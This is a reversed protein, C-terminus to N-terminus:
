RNPFGAKAKKAQAAEGQLGMNKFKEIIEPREQSIQPVLLRYTEVITKFFKYFNLTHAAPKKPLDALYDIETDSLYDFLNGSGGLVAAGRPEYCKEAYWDLYLALGEQDFKNDHFAVALALGLKNGACLSASNSFEQSWCSDGVAVVHDKYPLEIAKWVNVVCSEELDMRTVDKFWPSYVPDEKTFRDIGRSLDFGPEYSFASLHMQGEVAQLTLAFIGYMTIIFKLGEPDPVNAGEILRTQNRSTGIFKRDKNFGLLRVIRSNIGDAAVVFAAQYDEGGATVAAGTQTTKLATVNTNPFFDVGNSEVEDLIGKLLREKSVAIGQSNKEPDKKLEKWDGLMFRKGGPSYVHFGYLHSSWPGDYKISFGSTPFVFTQTKRDFEVVEGFGNEHLGIVGGDSRSIKSNDSKREILAIKLGKESATKATMLGAPGAGVIVVDYKKAM